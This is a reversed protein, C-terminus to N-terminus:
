VRERCSARGIQVPRGRAALHHPESRPTAFRPVPPRPAPAGGHIAERLSGCGAPHPLPRRVEGDPCELDSSCVDSSWDGIYSTHRRRSSFFFRVILIHLRNIIFHYLHPKIINALTSILSLIINRTIDLPSNAM